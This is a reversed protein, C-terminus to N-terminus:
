KRQMDKALRKLVADILQPDRGVIETFRNHTAMSDNKLSGMLASAIRRPVGTIRQVAMAALSIPFLRMHLLRNKKGRVISGSRMLLEDYGMVESGIEFIEHGVEDRNILAAIMAVADELAIPSCKTKSWKPMILIPLRRSLWYVMQYSVSCLGLLISARVEAVPVGASALAKGTDQRSRLHKSLGEKAPIIGGLYIIKKVGMKKAFKGTRSAFAHDMAEFDKAALSHVLYVLVDVGELFEETALDDYLNIRKWQVREHVLGTEEERRYSAIVRHETTAILQAILASGVCGRAGIIGINM